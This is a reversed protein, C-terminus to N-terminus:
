AAGRPGNSGSVRGYCQRIIENQVAHWFAGLQEAQEDAPIGLRDLQRLLAETVQRRYYEAHRDTTKDLMKSAVNRVKGIRKVMPFAILSRPSQWAFLPLDDHTM